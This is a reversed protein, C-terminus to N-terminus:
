KKQHHTFFPLGISEVVIPVLGAVLENRKYIVIAPAIMVTVTVYFGYPLEDKMIFEGTRLM